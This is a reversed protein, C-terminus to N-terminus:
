APVGETARVLPLHVEFRAGGSVGDVIRVSGGMATVDERVISLGIGSGATGRAEERELRGFAEWVHARDHEPIGPGDDTVTVEGWGDHERVHVRVTQGPPGYKVANDLLNILVRKLAERNARVRFAGDVSVAVDSDSAAALPRFAHVTERAVAGLDVDTPTPANPTHSSFRLINQVLAILRHTEAHMIDLAERKEKEHDLRGSRLLDTFLLVQQLPTRLEHSVNRVFRSRLTVLAQERRLQFVAIALLLGTLGVLGMALPLRSAPMGGLVLREAASSLLTVRVELGAYASSEGVPMTGYFQVGEYGTSRPRTWADGYAMVGDGTRAAVTFLSDNPTSGVLSPPLAQTGAIATEFASGQATRWCSEFGYAVDRDEDSWVRYVVLSSSGDVENTLHKVRRGGSLPEVESQIWAEFAPSSPGAVALDRTRLDMRFFRRRDAALEPECRSAEPAARLAEPPPLASRDGGWALDIPYFGYLLAEQMTRDVASGILYAAFGAHERATARATQRHQRGADYAQYALVLSVLFGLALPGGITLLGRSRRGDSSALETRESEMGRGCELTKSSAM